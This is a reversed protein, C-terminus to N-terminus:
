VHLGGYLIWATALEQIVTLLNESNSLFTVSFKVVLFIFITLYFFRNNKM